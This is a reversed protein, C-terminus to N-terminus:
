NGTEEGDRNWPARRVEGLLEGTERAICATCKTEFLAWVCMIEIEELPPTHFLCPSADTCGCNKCRHWSCPGDDPTVNVDTRIGAAEMRTRLIAFHGPCFRGMPFLVPGVALLILRAQEPCSTM